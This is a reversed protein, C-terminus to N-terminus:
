KSIRESFFLHEHDIGCGDSITYDGDVVINPPDIDRIVEAFLCLYGESDTGLYYVSNEPYNSIEANIKDEAQEILKDTVSSLYGEYQKDVEIVTQSDPLTITYTGNECKVLRHSNCGALTLLCLMATLFIIIKKM